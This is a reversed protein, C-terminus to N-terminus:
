VVFVIFRLHNLSSLLHTWLNQKIITETKDLIKAQDIHAHSFTKMSFALRVLARDTFVEANHVRCLTLNSRKLECKHIDFPIGPPDKLSNM